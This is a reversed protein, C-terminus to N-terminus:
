VISGSGAPRPPPRRCANGILFLLSADCRMADLLCLKFYYAPMVKVAYTTDPQWDMNEAQVFAESPNNSQHGLGLLGGHATRMYFYIGAHGDPGGLLLLDPYGSIVSPTTFTLAVTWPGGDTMGLDSMTIGTATDYATYPGPLSVAPPQYYLERWMREAKVLDDELAPPLEQLSTADSGAAGQM